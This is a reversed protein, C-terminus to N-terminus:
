RTPCRPSCRRVAPSAILPRTAAVILQLALTILGLGIVVRGFRGAITTERTVFVVVGVFILLPSLWSLDFSLVGGGHRPESM